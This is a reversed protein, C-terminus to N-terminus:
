RHGTKGTASFAGPPVVHTHAQAGNSAGAQHAGLKEDEEDGPLPNAEYVALAAYISARRSRSIDPKALEARLLSITSQLQM